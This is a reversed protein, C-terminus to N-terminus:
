VARVLVHASIMHILSRLTFLGMITVLPIGNTYLYVPVYMNILGFALGKLIQFLFIEIFERNPFDVHPRHFNHYNLM